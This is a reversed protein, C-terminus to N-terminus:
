SQLQSSKGPAGTLLDAVEIRYLAAFAALEAPRVVRSGNEIMSVTSRALRLKLAVELQTLPEALRAAKLRGGIDKANDVTRNDFM